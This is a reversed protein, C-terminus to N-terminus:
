YGPAPRPDGTMSSVIARVRFDRIRELLRARADADAAAENAWTFVPHVVEGERVEVERGPEAEWSAGREVLGTALCAAAIHAMVRRAVKERDGPAVQGIKLEFRSAWAVVNKEGMAGVASEAAQWLDAAPIGAEALQKRRREAEKALQPGFVRRGVDRWAIAELKGLEVSLRLMGDGVNKETATPDRLLVRALRDDSPMEVTPLAEAYAIRDPLAPHTDYVATEAKALAADLTKKLGTRALQKSSRRFGTYLEKPRFGANVLPTLENRLFMQFLIGGRAERRLGEIHAETGAIRVSAEDAALEQARSIKQTVRLFFRFYSAFISAAMGGGLSSVVRVISSRTRYVFGGLRTDGGAYHGFEHALTAKLQQVTDVQLLGVGIGMVRRAGIGYFGGVEAVFANVDPVLYVASPMKAGMKTAVERIVEFLQPEQEETVVPGPPDFKAGTMFLSRIMGYGVTAAVVVAVLVLKPFVHGAEIQLWISGLCVAIIAAGLVYFGFLLAVAVVARFFFSGKARKPMSTIIRARVGPYGERIVRGAAPQSSHM